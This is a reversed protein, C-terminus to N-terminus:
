QEPMTIDRFGKGRLDYSTKYDRQDGDSKGRQMTKDALNKKEDSKPQQSGSSKTKQLIDYARRLSINGEADTPAYDLAVKLLENRNFKLGDSELLALEDEVWKDYKKGEQSSAEAQREIEGLIEERLQSRQQVDYAQYKEWAAENKGFLETFWEPIETTKEGASESKGLKDLLPTVRDRFETLEKLESQLAQWRPHKHFAQFVAPDEGEKPKPSEGGERAEAQSATEDEKTKEDASSAPPTEKEEQEKRAPQDIRGEQQLETLFTNDNM